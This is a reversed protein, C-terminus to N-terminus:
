LYEKKILFFYILSILSISMILGYFGFFDLRLQAPCPIPQTEWPDCGVDLSNYKVIFFQEGASCDGIKEENPYSCTKEEVETCNESNDAREKSTTFQACTNTTNDWGCSGTYTLWCGTSYEEDSPLSNDGVSENDAECEELILYDACISEESDIFISDNIEVVGYDYGKSNLSWDGSEATFFFKNVKELDEEEVIWEGVVKGNSVVKDDTGVINDLGLLDNEKITFSVSEGSSVAINNIIMYVTTEDLVVNIKTSPTLGNASWFATEEYVCDDDIIGGCEAGFDEPCIGDDDGCYICPSPTAESIYIGHKDPDDDPNCLPHYVASVMNILIIFVALSVFGLVVKKMYGFPLQTKYLKKHSIM